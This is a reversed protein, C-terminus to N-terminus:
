HPMHSQLYSTCAKEEKKIPKPLKAQMYHKFKNFCSIFSCKFIYNTIKFNCFLKLNKYNPPNEQLYSLITAKMEIELHFWAALKCTYFSKQGNDQKPNSSQPGM